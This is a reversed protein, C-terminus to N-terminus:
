GMGKVTTKGKSQAVGYYIDQIKRAIIQWSFESEARKRAKLGMATRKGKDSLLSTIAHALEEPNRPPVLIGTKGDAIIRPIGGVRTGVLPKGTAMAELGAISTAEILSPLVVIDAIAYYKPMESNPIRGTFAVRDAIQLRVVEQNLREMEPGDGVILFRPKENQKIIYPIARILYEVGNKPELRRPCLIINENPKIGYKERIGKGSVQPHFADIDVGNPIFSTKDHTVGYKIVNDVLEQSPSIVYDSQSFLWHYLRKYEGKDVAMLFGSSHETQVKPINVIFRAVLACPLLNHYHILSIDKDKILARLKLWARFSCVMLGALRIPPISIRYVQIGNIEQCERLRPNTTFAIVYVENGQRLLATSLEYVHAAAGGIDPPFSGALMCIKM